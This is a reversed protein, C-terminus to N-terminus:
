VSQAIAALVTYYCQCFVTGLAVNYSIFKVLVPGPGLGPREPLLGAVIRRLWRM